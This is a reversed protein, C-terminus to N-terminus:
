AVGSASEVGQTGLVDGIAQSGTKGNLFGIWRLNQGEARNMLVGKM